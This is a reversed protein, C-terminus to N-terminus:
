AAYHAYARIVKKETDFHFVEAALGRPSQYYLTLSNIGILTSLLEFRLAPILELARRWYARVAAKGKLTGSPEGAVECIVPSVMEFQDSYHALVRDLDHHNWADIWDEAFARAFHQDIM